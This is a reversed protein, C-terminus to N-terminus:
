GNDLVRTVCLIKARGLCTFLHNLYEQEAAAFGGSADLEYDRQALRHLERDGWVQEHYWRDLLGSSARPLGALYEVGEFKLAEISDRFAVAGDPATSDFVETRGENVASSVKALSTGATGSQNLRYSRTLRMSALAVPNSPEGRRGPTRLLDRFIAGAAVSPLQDADGLLILRADPRIADLLREMMALDLMSSEDIILVSHALQNNRHYLFRDRSSSYGLLRHVTSPDPHNDILAQDTASPNPIQRLGDLFSERIRYAAKGTPAGLIIDESALGLRALVRLIALVISTKGTGPGGSIITLRATLAAQVAASQEPSLMLPKGHLMRPRDGVDVLAERISSLNLAPYAPQRILNALKASLAAEASRIRQQYIYPKLYLLPKYEDPTKGVVGQAVNTELLAEIAAIADDIPVSGCFAKLMRRIPEAAKSGTVPFRTSGEQLAAMSILILLILAYQHAPTLEPQLAAIEIAIHISHAPLNLAEAGAEAERLKQEYAGLGRWDGGHAFPVYGQTM